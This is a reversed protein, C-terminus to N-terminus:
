FCQTLSSDLPRENQAVILFFELEVYKHKKIVPPLEENAIKLKNKYTYKRYRIKLDYM